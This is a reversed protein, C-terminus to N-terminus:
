FFRGRLWLLHLAIGLAILLLGLGTQGILLFLIGGAILMASPNRAIFSFTSSQGKRNKILM